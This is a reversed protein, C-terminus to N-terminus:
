REDYAIRHAKLFAIFKEHFSIKRPAPFSSM